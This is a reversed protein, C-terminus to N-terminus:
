MLTVQGPASQLFAYALAAAAAFGVARFVKSRAAAIKSKKVQELGSVPVKPTPPSDAAAPAGTSATIGGAAAAAPEVISSVTTSQAGSGNNSTSDAAQLLVGAAAAAAAVAPAATQAAAGTSATLSDLLQIADVAPPSKSSTGNSSDASEASTSTDMSALAESLQAVKKKASDGSIAQLDQLTKALATQTASVVTAAEVEDKVASEVAAMAAAAVQDLDVDSGEASIVTEFLACVQLM